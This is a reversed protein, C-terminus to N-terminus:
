CGLIPSDWPPIDPTTSNALAQYRATRLAGVLQFSSTRAVVIAMHILTKNYPLTM